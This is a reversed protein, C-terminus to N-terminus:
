WCYGSGMWRCTGVARHPENCQRDGRSRQSLVRADHFPISFSFDTRRRRKLIEVARYYHTTNNNVEESSLLKGATEVLFLPGFSMTVFISCTSLCNIISLCWYTAPFQKIDSLKMKSAGADARGGTNFCFYICM